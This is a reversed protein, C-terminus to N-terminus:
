WHYGATVTAVILGMVGTAESTVWRFAPRLSLRRKLFIDVGGGAGWAFDDDSSKVTVNEGGSPFTHTTRSSLIGAGASVFIRTRGRTRTYALNATGSTVTGELPGGAIDREHRARILEIELRLRASLGYGFGAVIGPGTGLSGEDGGMRALGAGAFVEVRRGADQGAIAGPTLALFLPLVLGFRMASPSM